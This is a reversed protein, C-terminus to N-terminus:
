LWMGSIRDKFKGGDSDRGEGGELCEGGEGANGKRCEM